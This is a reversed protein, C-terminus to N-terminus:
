REEGPFPALLEDMFRQHRLEHEYHERQQDLLREYDAATRPQFYTPPPDTAALLFFTAWGLHYTRRSAAHM